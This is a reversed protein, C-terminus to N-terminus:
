ATNGSSLISYNGTKSVDLGSKDTPSFSIDVTQPAM